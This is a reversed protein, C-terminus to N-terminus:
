VDAYPFSFQSSMVKYKLAKEERSSYLLSM